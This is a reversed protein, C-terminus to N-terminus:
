AFLLSSLRRRADQSVPDQFGWAEFYKLLQKRAAEENWERQRRVMEARVQPNAAVMELYGFDLEHGLDAFTDEHRAIHTQVQGILDGEEPLPLKAAQVQGALLAAFLSVLGTFRIM